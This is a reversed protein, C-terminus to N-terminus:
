EVKSDDSIGSGSSPRLVFDRVPHEFKSLCKREVNHEHQAIVHVAAFFGAIKLGLEVYGIFRKEISAYFEVGCEAIVVFRVLARVFREVHTPFSVVSELRTIAYTEEREVAIVHIFGLKFPEFLLQRIGGAIPFDSVKM